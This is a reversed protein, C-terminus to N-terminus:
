TINELTDEDENNKIDTETHRKYIKAQKWHSWSWKKESM